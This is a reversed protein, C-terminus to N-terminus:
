VPGLGGPDKRINEIRRKYGVGIKTGYLSVLQYFEILLDFLLLVEALLASKQKKLILPKKLRSM